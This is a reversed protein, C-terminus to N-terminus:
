GAGPSSAGAYTGEAFVPGDGEEGVVRFRREGSVDGVLLRAAAPLPLPARFSVRLRRLGAPDGGFRRAILAHAVHAATCYGHLIPRRFGFPRATWPWLHIPNYDGSARAYRRGAGAGFHWRALEDWRAPEPAPPTADAPVASPDRPARTKVLLTSTSQSCLQGGGNWNRTALTLRIGRRAPEVKELEVRCRVRDGPRFPRVQIVESEQHVLAGLPLPDELAALLELGLATEWTAAFLPPVVAGAGHFGAIEEGGTARLYARLRGPNVEIGAREVWARRRPVRPAAAEGRAAVGRAVLRAVTVLRAFGSM